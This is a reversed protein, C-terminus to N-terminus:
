GVGFALAGSLVPSKHGWLFRGHTSVPALPYPKAWKGEGGNELPVTEPTNQVSTGM